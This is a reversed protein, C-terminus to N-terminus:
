CFKMYIKYILIFRDPKKNLKPFNILSKLYYKININKVTWDSILKSISFMTFLFAM